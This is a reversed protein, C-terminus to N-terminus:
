RGGELQEFKRKIWNMEDRDLYYDVYEDRPLVVYHWERAEKDEFVKFAIDSSTPPVSHKAPLRTGQDNFRFPYIEYRGADYRKRFLEVGVRELKDYLEGGRHRVEGSSMGDYKQQLAQVRALTGAPANATGTGTGTSPSTEEEGPVEGALDPETPTTEVPRSEAADPRVLSSSGAPESSATPEGPTPEITPYDEGLLGTRIWWFGLAIVALFLSTALLKM